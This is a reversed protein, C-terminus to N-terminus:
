CTKDVIEDEFEITVDEKFMKIPIRFETIDEFVGLSLPVTDPIVAWVLTRTRDYIGYEILELVDAKDITKLEPMHNNIADILDQKMQSLHPEFGRM